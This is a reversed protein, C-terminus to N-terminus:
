NRESVLLNVLLEKLLCAEYFHFISPLLVAKLNIM